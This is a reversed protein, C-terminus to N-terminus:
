EPKFNVPIEVVPGSGLGDPLPDLQQVQRAADMVSGDMLSNGSGKILEFGLVKGDRQVRIRLTVVLSGADPVSPPAWVAYFRDRLGAFYWGFDSPKGAGSGQGEAGKGPGAGASTGSTADTDARVPGPTAKGPAPTAKGPTAKTTAPSAKPTAPRPSAAKPTAKRPTAPKPTPPNPTAPKPTAPKPTAPKPTAPTPTAKPIPIPDPEPPPPPAPEPLPEPTPEPEDLVEAPTGGGLLGGDLWQIEERAPKKARSSIAWFLFVVLVHVMTTMMVTHRFERRDPWGADEDNTVPLARSDAANRM